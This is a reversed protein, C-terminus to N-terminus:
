YVVEFGFTAGNIFIDQTGGDIFGMNPLTYDVQNAARRINDIFLANYGLKAAISGTLQYSAQVRMEVVPSFDDDRKGHTSYTPSFYLPHNHQGPILDEGLAATQEWNSINYGFLCRGGWDWRVRGRQHLWRLAVQPGVMNNDIRTDWFSTGLVGGEANVLFDDRLRLYRAGYSFELENNQHKAMRHRNSLRHTRMIEIGHTTTSNRVFVTQWATPLLVLDDFDPPTGGVLFSDPEEGPDDLDFGDPGFQGDRDIDDAYGDGDLIGDGNQDNELSGGPVSGTTFDHVDIFGWMLNQPDNFVILVSGLPSLLQNPAGPFPSPLGLADDTVTDDQGTLGFGFIDQHIAVPGDLISVSWGANKHFYGFEYREGWGFESRPPLNQISSPYEPLTFNNPDPSIHTNITIGGNFVGGNPDIISGGSDFVRWAGM